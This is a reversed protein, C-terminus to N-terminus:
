WVLSMVYNVIIDNLIKLLCIGGAGFNIFINDALMDNGMHLVEMDIEEGDLAEHRKVIFM